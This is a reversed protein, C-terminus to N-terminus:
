AKHQDWLENLRKQNLRYVWGPVMPAAARKAQYELWLKVVDEKTAGANSQMALAKKIMEGASQSLSHYGTILKIVGLSPLLSLLAVGLRAETTLVKAQAAPDNSNYPFFLMAMLYFLCALVLVVSMCCLYNRTIETLHETWWSSEELNKLGRKVVDEDKAAFYPDPPKDSKAKAALRSPVKVMIDRREHSKIEVNLSDHFDLKDHLRQAQSKLSDSAYGFVESLVTLLLIGLAVYGIPIDILLALAGILAALGKSAIAGAWRWKARDFLGNEVLRLNYTPEAGPAVLTEAM